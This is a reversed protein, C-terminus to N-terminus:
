AAAQNTANFDKLSLKLTQLNLIPLIGPTPELGMQVQYSTQAQWAGSNVILTGRYYEQGIVHLHGSQFVDPVEDIVLPDVQLPAIATRGGYTPAVHRCRLQLRMAKQPEQFSLTPASTIMDELSRGHSLLFNVGHLAVCCPGGLSTVKHAEYVPEAFDAPIAPQPLAQRVGDHNGPILIIEVHEPMRRIFSAAYKYQDYISTIKLESEQRPYRGVGDVLDGAFVVYKTREAVRRQNVTGVEGNLWRIVREFVDELFLKSGIHTDSLLAAYIEDQSAGKAPRDPIDPLLIKEAVLLSGSGRVAEVYIVQDLPVLQATEYLQRDRSGDVLVTADATMDDVRFFIRGAKERKEMVMAIFKVHEGTKAGTANSLPVGNRADMRRHFIEVLKNFRYQFLQTFDEMSSGGAAMANTPDKLIQIRSEVEAAFPRTARISEGVHSVEVPTEVPRTRTVKDATQLDAAVSKDDNPEALRTPLAERYTDFFFRIDHALSSPDSQWAAHLKLFMDRLQAETLGTEGLAIVHHKWANRVREDTDYQVAHSVSVSSASREQKESPESTGVAPMSETKMDEEPIPAAESTKAIATATPASVPVSSPSLFREVSSRAIVRRWKPDKETEAAEILGSIIVEADRLTLTPSTQLLDLADKEISWGKNLLGRVIASMLSMPDSVRSVIICPELVCNRLQTRRDCM